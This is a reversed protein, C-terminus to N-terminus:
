KKGNDANKSCDLKHVALALLRQDRWKSWEPIQQLEYKSRMTSDVKAITEQKIIRSNDEEKLVNYMGGLYRECYDKVGLRFFKEPNPDEKSIDKNYHHLIINRVKLLM